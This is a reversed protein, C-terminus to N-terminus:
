SSGCRGTTSSWSALSTCHRSTMGLPGYEEKKEKQSKQFGAIGKTDFLARSNESAIAVAGLKTYKM